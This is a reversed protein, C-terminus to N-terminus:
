AGRAEEHARVAREIMAETPKDAGDVTLLFSHWPRTGDQRYRVRFGYWPRGTGLSVGAEPMCTVAYGKM